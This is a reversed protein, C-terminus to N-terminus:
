QANLFYLRRNLLTLPVTKKCTSSKFHLLNKFTQTSHDKFYLPRKLPPLSAIKKFLPLPATKKFLQLPATQVYRYTKFTTSRVSRINCYYM